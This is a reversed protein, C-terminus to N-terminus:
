TGLIVSKLKYIVSNAEKYSYLRKFVLHSQIEGNKGLERKNDIFCLVEKDRECM